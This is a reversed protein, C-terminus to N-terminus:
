IWRRVKKKYDAYEDGFKDSLYEEEPIVVGLALAYFLPIVMLFMMVSDAMFSLGILGFLFAMYIPNRSYQYPGDSVITTAPEDTPVSTGKAKFTKFSWKAVAVSGAFLFFGIWGFLRGGAYTPFLWELVIGAMIALLLLFPPHTIVKAADKDNAAKTKKPPIKVKLDAKSKAATKSAAAPTKKKAPAKKKAAPKKAPTKKKAPAKKAAKPKTGENDQEDTKKADAM